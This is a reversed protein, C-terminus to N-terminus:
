KDAPAQRDKEGAVAAEGQLWPRVAFVVATTTALVAALTILWVRTRQRARMAREAALQDVARQCHAAVTRWHDLLRV